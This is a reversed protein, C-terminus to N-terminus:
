LWPQLTPAAVALINRFGVESDTYVNHSSAMNMFITEEDPLQRLTFNTLRLHIFVLAVVFLILHLWRTSAKTAHDEPLYMVSPKM